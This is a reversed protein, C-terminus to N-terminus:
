ASDVLAPHAAAERSALHRDRWKRVTERTVDVEGNTATALAKRIWTLSRDDDAHECIFEGVPRGLLLSALREQASPPQM